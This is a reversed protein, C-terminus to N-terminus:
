MMNYILKSLNAFKQPTVADPRQKPDIEADILIKDVQVRELGLYYSLSNSMTKRRYRFLHNVLNIFCSEDQLPPDKEQKPEMVVVASDVRPSPYFVNSSVNFVMHLDTFYSCLVSLAGYHPSNFTATLRQAVEKQVMLVARHWEFESELLSYTFPSTIYYPLNAVIKILNDNESGWCAKALCGLDLKLVDGQVIYKRPYDELLYELVEVLGSDIEVALVSAGGQLMPLTLAGLGPGVEIIQDGPQYNVERLIKKAINADVLFNQGWRKHPHLSSEMLLQKIQRPSYINLEKM